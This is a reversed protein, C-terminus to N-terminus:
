TVLHKSAFFPPIVTGIVRNTTVKVPGFTM